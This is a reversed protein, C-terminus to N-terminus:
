DLSVVRLTTLAVSFHNWYKVAERMTAQYFSEPPMYLLCGDGTISDQPGIPDGRSCMVVKTAPADESESYSWLEPKAGCCPCRELIHPNNEVKRYLERATM